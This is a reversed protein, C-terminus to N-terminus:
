LFSLYDVWKGEIERSTKFIVFDSSRETCKALRDVDALGDATPAPAILRHLRAIEEKDDPRMAPFPFEEHQNRLVRIQVRESDSELLLFFSLFLSSKVRVCM